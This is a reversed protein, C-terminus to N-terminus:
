EASPLGPIAEHDHILAQAYYDEDHAVSVTPTNKHATFVEFLLVGVLMVLILVGLIVLFFRNGRKM